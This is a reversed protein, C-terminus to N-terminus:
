FRGTIQSGISHTTLTPTFHVNALDARIFRPNDIMLGAILMGLGVAQFSGLLVLSSDIRKSDSDEVHPTQEFAATPAGASSVAPENAFCWSSHFAVLLWVLVSMKAAPHKSHAQWNGMLSSDYSSSEDELLPGSSHHTSSLSGHPM